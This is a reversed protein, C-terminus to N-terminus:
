NHLFHEFTCKEKMFILAFPEKLARVNLPESGM